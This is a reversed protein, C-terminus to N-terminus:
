HSSAPQQRALRGVVATVLCAWTYILRRIFRISLNRQRRPPVNEGGAPFDGALWRWEVAALWALHRNLWGGLGEDLILDVGNRRRLGIRGVLDSQPRPTDFSLPRDGRTLVLNAGDATVGWYRHTLLDPVATMTVLDGPSLANPSVPCLVVQDGQQLLPAMSNSSVILTPQRGAALSDRLLDALVGADIQKSPPM